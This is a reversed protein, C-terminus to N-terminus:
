VLQKLGQKETALFSADKSTKAVFSIAWRKIYPRLLVQSKCWCMSVECKENQAKAKFWNVNNKSKFLGFFSMM